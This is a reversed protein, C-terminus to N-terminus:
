KPKENYCAVGYYSICALAVHKLPKGARARINKPHTVACLFKRRLRTAM